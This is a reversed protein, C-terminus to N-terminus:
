SKLCEHVSNVSEEKLHFLLIHKQNEIVVGFRWNKFWTWCHGSLPFSPPFVERNKNNTVLKHRIRKCGRPGYGVLSWQGHSKGPMFVPTPQWKRTWPIKVVWSSSGLDGANAPPNKVASGATYSYNTISDVKDRCSKIHTNSSGMEWMRGPLVHCSSYLFNSPFLPLGFLSQYACHLNAWKVQWPRHVCRHTSCRHALKTLIPNLWALTQLFYSAKIKSCFNTFWFLAVTRPLGM